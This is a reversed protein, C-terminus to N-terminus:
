EAVEELYVIGNEMGWKYKFGTTDDTINLDIAALEERILTEAQEHTMFVGSAITLSVQADNSITTVLDMQREVVASTGYAVMLDATDGANGYSYLIESGESGDAYRCKAYLALERFYFDATVDENSYVGGVILLGDPTREVKNITLSKVPTVVGTMTRATQGAPIYGSGMVIRTPVFTGNALVDAM